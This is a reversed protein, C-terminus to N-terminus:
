QAGIWNGSSWAAAKGMRDLFGGRHRSCASGLGIMAISLVLGSIAIGGRFEDQDNFEADLFSSLSTLKLAARDLPSTDQWPKDQVLQDASIDVGVISLSRYSTGDDLDAVEGIIIAITSIRADKPWKAVDDFTEIWAAAQGCAQSFMAGLRDLDCHVRFQPITDEIFPRLRAEPVGHRALEIAKAVMEQKAAFIAEDDPNKEDTDDTM